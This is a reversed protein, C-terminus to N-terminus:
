APRGAVTGAIFFARISATKASRPSNGDREAAAPATRAPSTRTPSSPGTASRGLWSTSGSAASITSAPGRKTERPPILSSLASSASPMSTAPRSQRSTPAEVPPKM